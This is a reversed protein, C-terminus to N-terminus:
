FKALKETFKILLNKTMIDTFEDKTLYLSGKRRIVTAHMGMLFITLKKENAITPQTKDHNFITEFVITFLIQIIINYAANYINQNNSLESQSYQTHILQKVPDTDKPTSKNKGKVQTMFSSFELTNNSKKVTFCPAFTGWTLRPKNCTILSFIYNFINTITPTQQIIPELTNLIKHLQEVQEETLTIETSSSGGYLKNQLELYKKKYKLYKDRYAM